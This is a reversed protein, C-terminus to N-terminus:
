KFTPPCGRKWRVRGAFATKLQRRDVAVAPRKRDKAAVLTVHRLANVQAQCAPKVLKGDDGVAFRVEKVVEGGATIVCRYTGPNKSLYMWKSRAAAKLREPTIGGVPDYRLAHLPFRAEQWRVRQRSGKKRGFTWYRISGGGAAAARAVVKGKYMCTMHRRVHTGDTKFWVSIAAGLDSYKTGLVGADLKAADELLPGMRSRTTNPMILAQTLRRDHVSTFTTQPRNASGHKIAIVDLALTAVKKHLKGLVTQKYSLDITYRGPRAVGHKRKDPQCHFYVLGVPVEPKTPDQRATAVIRRPNCTHAPGIKKGGRRLQYILVDDPQAETFRVFVDLVPTWTIKKGPSVWARVDTQRPGITDLVIPSEGALAPPAAALGLLLVTAPALKGLSRSM